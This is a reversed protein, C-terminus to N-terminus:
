FTFQAALHSKVIGVKGKRENERVRKALARQKKELLNFNHAVAQPSIQGDEGVALVNTISSTQRIIRRQAHSVGGLALTGKVDVPKKGGSKQRALTHTHTEAAVAAVELLSNASKTRRGMASSSGELIGGSASAHEDKPPTTATPPHSLPSIRPLIIIPATTRLDPPLM